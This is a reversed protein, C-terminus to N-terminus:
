CNRVKKFTSKDGEKGLTIGVMLKSINLNRGSDIIACFGRLRIIKMKIKRRVLLIKKTNDITRNTKSQQRWKASRKAM